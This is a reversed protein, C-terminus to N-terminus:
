KEVAMIDVVHLTNTSPDMTGIVKVTKGQFEKAKGQDDLQYAQGTSSDQLVLKGNAKTIKGEFARASQTDAQQQEQRASGAQDQPNPLSRARANLGLGCLGLLVALSFFRKM